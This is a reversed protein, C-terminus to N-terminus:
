LRVAIAMQAFEFPKNAVTRKNPLYSYHDLRCCFNKMDEQTPCFKLFFFWKIEVLWFKVSIYFNKM